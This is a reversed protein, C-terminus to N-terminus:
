SLALQASGGRDLRRVIAWCAVAAVVHVAILMAMAAVEKGDVVNTGPSWSLGAPLHVMGSHLSPILGALGSVPGIWAPRRGLMLALGVAAVGAALAPVVGAFHAFVLGYILMFPLIILVDWAPEAWAALLATGLSFVVLGALPGVVAFIALDRLIPWPDATLSM